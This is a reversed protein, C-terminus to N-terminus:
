SLLPKFAPSAGDVGDYVLTGASDARTLLSELGLYVSELAPGSLAAFLVLSQAGAPDNSCAVRSTDRAQASM